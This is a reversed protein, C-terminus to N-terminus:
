SASHQHSADEEHEMPAFSEIRCHDVPAGEGLGEGLGEGRVDV